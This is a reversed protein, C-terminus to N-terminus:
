HAGYFILLLDSREQKPRGVAGRRALLALARDLPLKAVRARAQGANPGRVLHPGKSAMDESLAKYSVERDFAELYRLTDALAECAKLTEATENTHQKRFKRAEMQAWVNGLAGTPQANLAEILQQSPEEGLAVNALNMVRPQPPM